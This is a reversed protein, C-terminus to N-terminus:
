MYQIFIYLHSHMCETLDINATKEMDKIRRIERNAVVIISSVFGMCGAVNLRRIM